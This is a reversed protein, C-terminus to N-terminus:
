QGDPFIYKGEALVFFKIFLQFIDTAQKLQIQKGQSPVISFRHLFQGLVKDFIFIVVQRAGIKMMGTVQLRKLIRRKDQLQPFQRIRVREPIWTESM